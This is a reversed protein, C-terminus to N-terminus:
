FKMNIRSYFCDLKSVQPSELVVTNGQSRKKPSKIIRSQLNERSPTCPGSMNTDINIKQAQAFPEPYINNDHGIFNKLQNSLKGASINSGWSKSKRHTRFPSSPPSSHERGYPLTGNEPDFTFCGRIHKLPSTLIHTAKESPAIPRKNTPSTTGYTKSYDIFSSTDEFEEVRRGFRPSLWVKGTHETQPLNETNNDNKARIFDHDSAFEYYISSAKEDDNNNINQCRTIQSVGTGLRRFAASVAAIPTNPSSSNHQPDSIFEHRKSLPTQLKVFHDRNDIFSNTVESASLNISELDMNLNTSQDDEDQIAKSINSENLHLSVNTQKNSTGQNEDNSDDKGIENDEKDQDDENEEEDEEENEEAVADMAHVDEIRLKIEGIDSGYESVMSNVSMADENDIENNNFRSDNKFKLALSSYNEQKVMNTDNIDQDNDSYDVQHIPAQGQQSSLDNEQNDSKELKSLLPSLKRIPSLPINNDNEGSADDTASSHDQYQRKILHRFTDEKNNSEEKSPSTHDLSTSADNANSNFVSDDQVNNENDYQNKNDDNYPQVNVVKRMLNPPSLLDVDPTMTLKSTPDDIDQEKNTNQKDQSKANVPSVLMKGKDDIINHNVYINSSTDADADTNDNEKTNVNINSLGNFTQMSMNVSGSTDLVSREAEQQQEKTITDKSQNRSLDNANATAPVLTPMLISSAIADQEYEEKSM